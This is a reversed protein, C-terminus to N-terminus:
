KEVLQFAGDGNSMAIPATGWSSNQSFFAFDDRQDGNYDGVVVTVSSASLYQRYFVDAQKNTVTFTGDGNSFAIVFSGWGSGIKGLLALDTRGDGNFDGSTIHTPSTAFNAFRCEQNTITFDGDGNSFAVPVTGWGNTQRVLAIDSYGDGNYDGKVMSVEPSTAWQTYSDMKEVAAKLSQSNGIHFNLLLTLTILVLKLNKFSIM